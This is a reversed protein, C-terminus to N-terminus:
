LSMKDVYSIDAAGVGSKLCIGDPDRFGVTLEVTLHGWQREKPIRSMAAKAPPM